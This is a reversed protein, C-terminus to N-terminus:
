DSEVFVEENLNWGWTPNQLLSCPGDILHKPFMKDKFQKMQTAPSSTTICFFSSFFLFAFVYKLM